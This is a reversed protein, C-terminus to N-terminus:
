YHCITIQDIESRKLILIYMKSCKLAM